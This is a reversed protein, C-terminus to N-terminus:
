CDDRLALVPDAREAQRAPLWAAVVGTLLLLVPVVAFTLPDVPAVHFLLSALGRTAVLAAILGAAVGISVLRLGHRVVLWRVRSQPAGLAIRIGMERTRRRTLQAIVGYVGVVALTLGVAAFLAFLTMVFRDRALSGARVSVLTELKEVPQNPDLERVVGRIVPGLAAAPGDTRAVITMESSPEQAFPTFAEIAPELSLGRQHENGIVGVITSWRSTSDPIRDFVIRQGVPNEGRFFARALQENIVVVPAADSRDADTFFRGAILPVRMVALYDPTATRHVVESGYEGPPRGAIAFDSTYGRGALSVYSM